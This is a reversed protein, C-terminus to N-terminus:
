WSLRGNIYDCMKRYIHKEKGNIYYGKGKESKGWYFSRPEIVVM